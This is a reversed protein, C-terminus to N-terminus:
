DVAQVCFCEKLSQMWINDYNAMRVVERPGEVPTVVLLNNNNILVCGKNFSYVQAIASVVCIIM